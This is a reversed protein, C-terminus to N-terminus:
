APSHYGIETASIETTIPPRQTGSFRSAFIQSSSVAYRTLALSLPPSSGVVSVCLVIPPCPPLLYPLNNTAIAPRLSSEQIRAGPGAGAGGM